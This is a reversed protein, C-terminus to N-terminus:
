RIPQSDAADVPDSSSHRAAIAPDAATLPLIAIVQTGQNVRSQIEISGGWLDVCQQVLALGIGNGQIMEANSARQFPLVVLDIEELPIGIGSDQVRISLYSAAHGIDLTIHGGRPSFKIANSLLNDLIIQLLNADVGIPTPDMDPNVSESPQYCLELTHRSGLSTQHKNVVERCFHALNLGTATFEYAGDMLTSVTMLDDLLQTLRQAALQINGFRKQRDGDTYHDGYHQLLETATRIITLPTRFEHSVTTIFQSKLAKLGQERKLVQRIQTEAQKLLTIDRSITLVTEVMGDANFEPVIRSQFSRDGTTTHWTDDITAAEGTAFVQTLAQRLTSGAQGFQEMGDCPQGLFDTAPLGSLEEIASNVYLYRLHCDFRAVIDPLHNLLAQYRAQSQEVAEVRQRIQTKLRKNLQQLIQFRHESRNVQDQLESNWRHLDAAQHVSALISDGQDPQTAVHLLHSFTLDGNVQGSPDVVLLYDLDHHQMTQYARWLSCHGPITILPHQIAAAAMTQDMNVAAARQRLMDHATLCGVPQEGDMVMVHSVQFAVLLRTVDLLSATTPAQIVCRNMVESALCRHLQETPQLLHRCLQPLTVIGWFAGQEELLVLHRLRLQEMLALATKPDPVVPAPFAVLPLSLVQAIALEARDMETAILRVVDQTTLLGITQQQDIVLAYDAQVRSMSCIAENLPTQSELTLPQREILQELTPVLSSSPPM